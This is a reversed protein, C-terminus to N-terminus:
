ADTRNFGLTGGVPFSLMGSVSAHARANIAAFATYRYFRHRNRFDSLAFKKEAYGSAANTACINLLNMVTEDRRRLNQPVLKSAGYNFGPAADRFKFGAVTHDAEVVDRATGTKIALSLKKRLACSVLLDTKRSAEIRIASAKRFVNACHGPNNLASHDREGCVDAKFFGSEYFGYISTELSHAFSTHGFVFSNQYDAL